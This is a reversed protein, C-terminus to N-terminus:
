TFASWLCECGFEASMQGLELALDQCTIRLRSM